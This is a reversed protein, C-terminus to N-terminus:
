AKAQIGKLGKFFKPRALGILLLGGGLMVFTGPEPVVRLFEQEPTTYRTATNNSAIAVDTYIRTQAQLNSITSASATSIWNLANTEWTTYAGHQPAAANGTVELINWIADQIGVNRTSTNAQTYDYQTTLWAAMTYRSLANSFAGFTASDTFSAAATTGYRTNALNGSSLSTINDTYATNYNFTNLYDICFVDFTQASNAGEYATFRGGNDVNFNQATITITAASATLSGAITIAALVATRIISKKNM